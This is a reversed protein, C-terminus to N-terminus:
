SKKLRGVEPKCNCEGGRFISCWDDHQVTIHRVEGPPATMEGAELRQQIEKIYKPTTM